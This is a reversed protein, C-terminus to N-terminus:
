FEEPQAEDMDEDRSKMEKGIAKFYAEFRGRFSILDESPLLVDCVPTIEYFVTESGVRSLVQIDLLDNLSKNFEREYKLADSHTNFDALFQRLDERKVQPADGQPNRYFQLRQMRLFYLMLSSYRGLRKAAGLQYDLQEETELSLSKIYAVGWIPDLELDAALSRLIPRIKDQHEVLIQFWLENKSRLLFRMKFLRRLAGAVLADEKSLM